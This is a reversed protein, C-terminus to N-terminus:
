KNIFDITFLNAKPYHLAYTEDKEFVIKFEFVKRLTINVAFLKVLDIVTLQLYSLVDLM